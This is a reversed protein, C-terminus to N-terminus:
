HGMDGGADPEIPNAVHLGALLAAACLPADASTLVDAGVILAAALHVADYGRLGHQEALESAHRVLGETIEVITMQAWLTELGTVANRHDRTTLRGARLAAALAARAEAYLIRATALEDAEDWILEARESGAEDIILKILTSTDVYTIM